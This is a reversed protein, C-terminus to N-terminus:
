GGRSLRAGKADVVFEARRFGMPRLIGGLPLVRSVKPLEM